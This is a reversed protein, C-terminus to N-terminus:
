HSSSMAQRIVNTVAGLVQTSNSRSALYNVNNGQKVTYSDATALYLKVKDNSRAPDRVELHLLYTGPTIHRVVVGIIRGEVAKNSVEVVQVSQLPASFRAYKCSSSGPDYTITTPTLTVTVPHVSDGSLGSHEHMLEITVSGGNRLVEAAVGQLQAPNNSQLYASALLSHPLSVGMGSAPPNANHVPGGVDSSRPSTITAPEENSGDAPGPSQTTPTEVEPTSTAVPEPTASETNGANLNGVSPESASGQVLKDNTDASSSTPQTEGVVTFKASSVGTQNTLNNHASVEAVYVGPPSNPPLRLAQWPYWGSPANDRLKLRNTQSVLTISNSNKLAVAFTVDIRGGQNVNLAEAYVCIPDGSLFENKAIFSGWGSAKGCTAVTGMQLPPPSINSVTAKSLIVQDRLSLGGVIIAASLALAGAAVGVLAGSKGAHKSVFLPRACTHLLSGFTTAWALISYAAPLTSQLVGLVISGIILTGCGGAFGGTRSGVVIAGLLGVLGAIGSVMNRSPIDSLAAYVLYGVVGGFSSGLWFVSHSYRSLASQEIEVSLDIRVASDGGNSHIHVMGTYSSGLNLSSTDIFVRIEQHHKRGTIETTSVKLWEPDSVEINGQLIGGGKNDTAFTCERKEGKRLTGLPFGTQSVVLHPPDVKATPRPGGQTAAQSIVEDDSVERAGSKAMEAWILQEARQRTIGLERAQELLDRKETTTLLNDRLTFAIFGSLKAEKERDRSQELSRDYARKREADLLCASVQGLHNLADDIYPSVKKILPNSEEGKDRQKKRAKWWNVRAQYAEDIEQTSYQREPDLGIRQYHDTEPRFALKWEGGQEYKEANFKSRTDL